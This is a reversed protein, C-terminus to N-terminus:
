MMVDMVPKGRTIALPRGEADHVETEHPIGLLHYVTAALDDPKVPNAAPHMGHKDSEGYVYGQKVGGGALLTTYCQPWHDRSQNGNIKPTRGFEGMWIVLTTDLLGRQDLDELLTPLTEETRPLHYAEVIPFMRTNDFGHTDWGGDTKSRGGISNSFYVTVFKVGAEVLRRALLCSQGYTSRGYADRMVKPEKSIDFAQRVRPSSLMTLAKEYYSDLGRAEGSYDLLRSQQDILQQLHRRRELRDMSLNSPLSLQPLSFDPANPDNGVFLPDHVKGLFSAHQGPTRSGDSIVHPFAVSTPLEGGSPEGSLPALKDVVSGYAPFLDISDRLRQDDTAPASGTLAYYGASNHNNMTHTMSRILTVKDMIKATKELKESVWIGNASSKIPKYPGRINAPAEPKMDFMDVHSPGGWQFLFIVSKAKAILKQTQKADAARLLTQMNLGLAGMGGVKLVHRRSLLSNRYGACSPDRPQTMTIRVTSEIQM